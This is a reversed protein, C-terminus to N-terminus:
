MRLCLYQNTPILSKSTAVTWPIKSVFVEFVKKSSTAMQGEDVESEEEEEVEAEEEEEEDVEEEEEEKTEAASQFVLKLARYRWGCFLLVTTGHKVHTRARM